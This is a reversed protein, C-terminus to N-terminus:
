SRSLVFEPLRMGLQRAADNQQQDFSVFVFSLAPLSQRVREAVALHIADMARLPHLEILRAARRATWEDPMVRDFRPWDLEFKERVATLEEARIRAQRHAKALASAVEVYSFQHTVRSDVRDLYARVEDHHTERLYDRVIASPDLYAIV